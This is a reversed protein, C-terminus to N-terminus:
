RRPTHASRATAQHQQYWAQQRAPDWTAFARPPTPPTPAIATPTGTFSTTADALFQQQQAPPWSWFGPPLRLYTSQGASPVSQNGVGGTGAGGTGGGTPAPHNAIWERFQQNTWDDMRAPGNTQLYNIQRGMGWDYFRGPLNAALGGGGGTGAGGGGGSGSGGGGGPRGAGGAGGEGGGGEGRGGEPPRYGPSAITDPLRAFNRQAADGITRQWFNIGRGWEHNPPGLPATNNNGGGNGTPRPKHLAPGHSNTIPIGGGRAMIAPAAGFLGARRAQPPPSFLGGMPQQQLLGLRKPDIMPNM